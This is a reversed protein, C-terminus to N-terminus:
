LDNLQIRIRGYTASFLPPDQSLFHNFLEEDAVKLVEDLLKFICSILHSLIISLNVALGAHAGEIDKTWYLPCASVFAMFSYFADLEPMVYLFVGAPINMGQVYTLKTRRVLGGLLYFLNLRVSWNKNFKFTLVKLHIFQLM